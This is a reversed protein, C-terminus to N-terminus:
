KYDKLKAKRYYIRRGDLVDCAITEGKPKLKRRLTLIHPRINCNAGLDDNLCKRLEERTHPKYDEFVALMRREVPTFGNTTAM